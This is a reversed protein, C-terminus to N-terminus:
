SDEMAPWSQHSDPGAFVVGLVVQAGVEEIVACAEM